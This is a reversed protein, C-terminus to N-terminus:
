KIRIAHWASAFLLAHNCMEIWLLVFYLKLVYPYDIIIQSANKLWSNWRYFYFWFWFYFAFLRTTALYVGCGALRGGRSDLCISRAYAPLLPILFRFLARWSIVLWCAVWWVRMEIMHANYFFNSVCHSISVFTFTHSLSMNTENSVCCLRALHNNMFFALAGLWMFNISAVVGCSVVRLAFAHLPVSGFSLSFVLSLEVSLKVFYLCDLFAPPLWLTLCWRDFNRLWDFMSVCFVWWKKNYCTQHKILSVYCPM